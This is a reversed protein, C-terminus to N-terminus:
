EGHAKGKETIYSMPNFKDLALKFSDEPAELEELFIGLSEGNAAVLFLRELADLTQVDYIKQIITPSIEGFRMRLLQLLDERDQVLMAEEEFQFM